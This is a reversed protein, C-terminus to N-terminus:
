VSASSGDREDEKDQEHLLENMRHGVHAMLEMSMRQSKYDAKHYNELCMQLVPIYDAIIRKGKDANGM